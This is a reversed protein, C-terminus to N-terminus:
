HETLRQNQPGQHDLSLSGGSYDCQPSATARGGAVRQGLDSLGFALYQCLVLADDLRQGCVTRLRLREKSGNLSEPPASQTSATAPALLPHDTRRPCSLPLRSGKGNEKHGTEDGRVYPQLPLAAVLEAYASKMSETVKAITKALQGRSVRVKLVDRFFRRITSFSCHCVSKM